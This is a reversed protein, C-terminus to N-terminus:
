ASCWRMQFYTAYSGSLLNLAGGSTQTVFTELYDGAALQIDFSTGAVFPPSSANTASGMIVDTLVTGGGAVGASNKCIQLERNGTANYAFASRVAVHYLGATNAIVRSSSATFENDFNYLSSTWSVATATNNTLSANANIYAHTRPNNVFVVPTWTTGTGSAEYYANTDKRFAYQGQSAQRSPSGPFAANLAAQNAFVMVMALEAASGFASMMGPVDPPSDSGVPIPLGLVPTTGTVAM